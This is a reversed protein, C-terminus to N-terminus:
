PPFGTSCKTAQTSNIVTPIVKPGWDEVTILGDGDLDEARLLAEMTSEVKVVGENERM